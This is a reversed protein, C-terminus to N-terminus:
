PNVQYFMLKQQHKSDSQRPYEGILDLQSEDGFSFRNHNAVLYVLQNDNLSKIIDPHDTAKRPFGLGIVNINESKNFYIQLGDPLTGFSGETAVLVPQDSPLDNLYNKIEELGFGSSWEQLYQGKEIQHLPAKKPNILLFYDFKLWFFALLIIFVLRIPKNLKTIGWSIIITLFPVIPLFYRPYIIKGISAQIFIPILVFLSLALIKLSKKKIAIFWAIILMIILPWSFYSVLWSVIITLTAPFFELWTSTIESASRLYDASRSNVMHFANSFRQLNYAGLSIATSLSVPAIITKIKKIWEKAPILLFLAPLLVLYLAASPKTLLSSTWLFGLIIAQKFSPKTILKLSCFVSWSIFATLLSDTVSLRDYFVLIPQFVILFSAIIATKQDFFTKALYYVAILTFFGASVSLLRGVLLPDINIELLPSLLWMHLPTKGDSLPIFYKGQWVLQAWKLYIAEDAFIPLLNLNVLRTVFYLGITLLLILM